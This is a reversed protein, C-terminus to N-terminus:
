QRVEIVRVIGDSVYLTSTQAYAHAQQLSVWTRTDGNYCPVTAAVSYSQGGVTVTDQGVWASNPVNSLKTLQKVSAFGDQKANLTVAVYDGTRVSYNTAFPGVKGAGNEVTLMTDGAAYTPDYGEEGPKRGQDDPVQVKETTITARGYFVTDTTAGTLVILDVQDKWNLRAYHIQGAPIIGSSLESLAISQGDRFVRVGESLAVGGLKRASVDLQGSAGGSVRALNVGSKSSSIRVAQGKYQSADAAQVELTTGGCIMQVTGSGTVIGVANGRVSGSADVAGAVQGGETLLLTITDGPKFEALSSMATPLVDFTRGMATITEPEKPSPACSEYYVTVRTDCVRISNSAASYIAVDYKRMDSLTAPVGNKYLSYGTGGALSDFGAGSHDAYVVVAAEASGGGGVFIYDVSGGANLYLTVQTGGHIWSSASGWTTEAGNYYTKTGSTVAYKVGSNDIIQTATCSALTITRSVGAAEPVFTVAKGNSDVVLTGRRGNLIGSSTKGSALAYVAGDATQLANDRGDPGTATASILMTNTVPTGLTSVYSGGERKDSRLLNLFLRAAQGRTLAANGNTGVGDTLGITAGVAMYSDPWVGGVNEDKYDLMRLLITVAQGVTVTRDPHFLGDAYGAIIQKGKAAMNIYAAAWHSPKVDPFVTVTRYLGLEDEGGMAYVAMKCFQARTLVAGPRFTGDGYGDLVDMLRLTEVAAATDRDSIDAFTTTEAAAAGPMLTCLMCVALLWTMIRKKM